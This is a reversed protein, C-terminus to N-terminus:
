KLLKIRWTILFGAVPVSRDPRGEEHVRIDTMPVGCPEVYFKRESQVVIRHVWHCWDSAHGMLMVSKRCKEKGIPASTVNYAPREKEASLFLIPM